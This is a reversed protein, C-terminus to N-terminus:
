TGFITLITGFNRSFSRISGIRKMSPYTKLSSTRSPVLCTSYFKYIKSKRSIQGPWCLLNQANLSFWGVSGKLYSAISSTNTITKSRRCCRWSTSPTTSWCPPASVKSLILWSSQTLTKLCFRCSDNSSTRLISCGKSEGSERGLKRLEIHFLTWSDQFVLGALCGASLVQKRFMIGCSVERSSTSSCM